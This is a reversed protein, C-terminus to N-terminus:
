GTCDAGEYYTIDFGEKCTYEESVPTFSLNKASQVSAQSSARVPNCANFIKYYMLSRHGNVPSVLLKSCKNGEYFGMMVECIPAPSQASTAYLHLLFLVFLKKNM